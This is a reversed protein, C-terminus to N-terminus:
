QRPETQRFAQVAQRSLHGTSAAARPSRAHMSGDVQPQAPLYGVALRIGFAGKLNHFGERM